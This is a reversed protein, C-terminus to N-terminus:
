NSAMCSPFKLRIGPITFVLLPEATAECEIVIAVGTILLVDNSYMSASSAFKVGLWWGLCTFNTSMICPPKVDVGCLQGSSTVKGGLGIYSLWGLSIPSWTAAQPNLFIHSGLILLRLPPYEDNAPSTKWDQNFSM